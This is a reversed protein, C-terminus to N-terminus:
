KSTHQTTTNNIHHQMTTATPPQSSHRGPQAGCRGGGERTGEGGWLGRMLGRVNMTNTYLQAIWDMGADLRQVVEEYNLPGDGSSLPPFKPGVQDGSIEDRGGNLVYLLIKPLNTRAGFFQMDKGIRM